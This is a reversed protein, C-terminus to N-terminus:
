TAKLNNDNTEKGESKQFEVKWKRALIVPSFWSIILIIIKKMELLNCKINAIIHEYLQLPSHSNYIKAM